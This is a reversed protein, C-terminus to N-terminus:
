AAFRGASGRGRDPDDARAHRGAPEFMPGAALVVRERGLLDPSSRRDGGAHPTTAPGPHKRAESAEASLRGYADLADRLAARLRGASLPDFALVTGGDLVVCPGSERVTVHVQSRRGNENRCRVTWSHRSAEAPVKALLSLVSFREARFRKM